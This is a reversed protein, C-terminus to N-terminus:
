LMIIIYLASNINQLSQFKCFQVKYLLVVTHIFILYLIINQILFLIM